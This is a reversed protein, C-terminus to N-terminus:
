SPNESSMMNGSLFHSKYCLILNFEKKTKVTEVKTHM